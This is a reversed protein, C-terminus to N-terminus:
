GGRRSCSHARADALTMGRALGLQMANADTATIRLAGKIKEVIVLPTNQEAKAAATLVANDQGGSSRGRRDWALRNAALFPFWVALYRANTQRAEIRLVDRTM